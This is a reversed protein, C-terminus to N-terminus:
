SLESPSPVKNFQPIAKNLLDYMQDRVRSPLLEREVIEVAYPVDGSQFDLDWLFWHEEVYDEIQEMPLLDFLMSLAKAKDLCGSDGVELPVTIIHLRQDTTLRKDQAMNWLLQAAQLREESVKFSSGYFAQVVQIRQELSLDPRHVLGVFMQVAKLREESDKHSSEYLARVAEIQQEISLDARHALKLLVTVAERKEELDKPSFRYLTQAAEIQQEISLDPRHMLKLMVAVAEREEESGGPSAEYLAQAVEIQQEISLDPRHMLKLLVTAAERKEESDEPSVDYFAQVAQIQQEVSLAPHQALKLLVQGAKRKEESGGPSSRCLAQAAQIQQEISLDPRQALKLLVAVADNEEESDKSSYLYLAQAAEIQQEVALDSRRVLKLLADVAERKEQSNQLSSSYLKTAIEIRLDVDRVTDLKVLRLLEQNALNAYQKTQMLKGLTNLAKSRQSGFHSTVVLDRLRLVVSEALDSEVAIEEVLCDSVFFLDQQLIHTYRSRRSKIKGDLIQRLRVTVPKRGLKGLLLFIVERWHPDHLHEELFDSIVTPDEDETYREHVDSAAFYEQFTRHVFGYLNEGNEDTGREVILGAEVLMLNLFLEAQKRQEAKESISKTSNLFHEIQRLMLRAPVDTAMDKGSSNSQQIEKEEQSREHLKFGLHAVCASQDKKSLKMDAWRIDTGKVRAWTELLLEACRDYVQVRKEPLRQSRYLATIVTLLLPNEALKHLRTNEKLIKFLTELEQQEEYPLPSLRLVHTYWRELFDRIQDDNFSQVRTHVFLQKACSALEYGVPRSTVLIYNGPYLQAFHEIEQVLRRREDLTTVEDLGDFLILMRKQTLLREFMLPSVNIEERALLVESAYSLFSYPHHKREQTLLRLEIRLPLPRKALLAPHSYESTTLNAEAHSWALHRIATSKGSGPDGLLVMHPHRELLDVLAAPQKDEGGPTDTLAIRLPVFIGNLEPDSRQDKPLFGIIKLNHLIREVHITYKAIDHLFQEETYDDKLVQHIEHLTANTEAAYQPLLLAMRAQIADSVWQKFCPEAYLEAILADFFSILYPAADAEVPATLHSLNRTRLSRNYIENLEALNPADSLTFLTMVERRLANSHEGPEFLNTLIDRYRDRDQSKRFKALGRTTAKKLVRQLSRQLGKEQLWGQGKGIATEKGKNLLTNGLDELWHPTNAAIYGAIVATFPDPM